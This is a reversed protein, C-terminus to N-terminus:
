NIYAIEPTMSSDTECARRSTGGRNATQIEAFVRCEIRMGQATDIRV